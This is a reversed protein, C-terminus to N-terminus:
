KMDTRPSPVSMMSSRQLTMDIICDEIRMSQESPQMKLVQESLTTIAPVLSPNAFDATACLDDIGAAHRVLRERDIKITINESADAVDIVYTEAANLLFVSGPM